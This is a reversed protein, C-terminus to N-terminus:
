RDAEALARRLKAIEAELEDISRGLAEIASGAVEKTDLRALYGTMYVTERRPRDPRTRQGTLAAELHRDQPSRGPM